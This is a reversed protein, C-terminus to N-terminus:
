NKRSFIKFIGGKDKMKNEEILKKNGDIITEALENKNAANISESLNKVVATLEEIQKDKARLQERLIEILEGDFSGNKNSSEKPTRKVNEKVIELEFAQKILTVGDNNITLCNSTKTTLSRLANSLPPKRIRYFIAQKSVGIEAAIEAVTKM